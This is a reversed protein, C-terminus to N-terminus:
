MYQILRTYNCVIYRYKNSHLVNVHSKYLCMSTYAPLQGLGKRQLTDAVSCRRETGILFQYEVEDAAM